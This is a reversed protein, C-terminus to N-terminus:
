APCRRRRGSRGVRGAQRRLVPRRAIVGVLMGPVQVDIGFRRKGTVKDGHRAAADGERPGQLGQPGQADRQEPVPLKSAAEALEGYARTTPRTTFSKATRPEAARERAVRWQPPPPPLWCRARGRAPRACRSGAGRPRAAAPGRSASSRTSTPGTAPAARRPGQVLRRRAGRRGADSGRHARGPGNRLAACWPSRATPASASSRTRAVAAHPRGRPVPAPACGICRALSSAPAPLAAHASSSAGTSAAIAHSAVRSEKAGDLRPAISRAASASTPRRLPLHQRVDRRRHRRRDAQSTKAAARGRTM